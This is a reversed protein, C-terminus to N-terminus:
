ATAGEEAARARSEARVRAENAEHIISDVARTLQRLGLLTGITQDTSRVNDATPPEIMLRDVLFKERAQLLASVRAYGPSRELELIEEQVRLLEPDSWEDRILKAFDGHGKPKEM